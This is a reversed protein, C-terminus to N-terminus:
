SYCKLYAQAVELDEPTTLKLNFRSGKIMKVPYGQAELLAADDTYNEKKKQAEILCNVLTKKCFIQPTQVEWINERDISQTVNHEKNVRKISYCLPLGVIAAGHEKAGNFTKQLLTESIFPRAADHICVYQTKHSCLALGNQMSGQRTTGPFAFTIKKNFPGTISNKHKPDMVIIIEEVIPSRDFIKLSYSILPKNELLTFQKPTKASFRAGIGGALLIVSLNPNM